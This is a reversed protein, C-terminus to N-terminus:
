LMVKTYIKREWAQCKQQVYCNWKYKDSIPLPPFHCDANFAGYIHTIIMVDILELDLFQKYVSAGGIVYIKSSHYQWNIYDLMNGINKFWISNDKHIWGDYGTSRSLVCNVREPLPRNKAPLSNYTNSGMIVVNDITTAKFFKMDQPNSWPLTNGFGIGGFDDVAAILSIKM